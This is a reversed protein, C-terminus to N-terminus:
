SNFNQLGIYADSQAKHTFNWSGFSLFPSICLQFDWRFRLHPAGKNITYLLSHTCLIQRFIYFQNFVTHLRQFDILRGDMSKGNLTIYSKEMLYWHFRVMESEQEYMWLRIRQVVCPLFLMQVLRLQVCLKYHVETM